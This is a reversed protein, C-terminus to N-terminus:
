YKTLQLSPSAIPSKVTDDKGSALSVMHYGDDNVSTKLYSAICVNQFLGIFGLLVIEM